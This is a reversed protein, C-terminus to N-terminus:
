KLYMYLTFVTGEAKFRYYGGAKECFAAISRTGFGHGEEPNEPIDETNFQINGDFSNRVMIM